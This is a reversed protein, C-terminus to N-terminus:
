VGKCTQRHFCTQSKMNDIEMLLNPIDDYITKEIADLLCLSIFGCQKSLSIFSEMSHLSFFEQYEPASLLDKDSIDRHALVKQYVKYKHPMECILDAIDKGSQFFSRHQALANIYSDVLLAHNRVLVAHRRLFAAKNQLRNAMVEFIDHLLSEEDRIFMAQFEKSVGQFAKSWFSSVYVRPPETVNILPSLSWFLTGYVRLLEQSNMSDAKNLVIRVKAEYGKLHKFIKELETGVDLKAPDFVIIILDSQDIFWQCIEDFPFGREQQKRNEIVGPTDVFNVLKLISNPIQISKLRELLVKGYKELTSYRKEMVLVNGDVIKPEDSHGLITFDSTTPQAGADLSVSSNEIGLIYNILTSKGTSWPGLLTVMPLSFIEGENMIHHKMDNYKYADELPKISKIYLNLLKDLTLKILDKDYFDTINELNLIREFHERSRLSLEESSSGIKRKMQSSTGQALLDVSCQLIIFAILLFM